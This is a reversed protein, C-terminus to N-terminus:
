VIVTKDDIISNSCIINLFNKKPSNKFVVKLFFQIPSYCGTDENILKLSVVLHITNVQYM